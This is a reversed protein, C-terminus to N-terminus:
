YNSCAIPTSIFGNSLMDQCLKRDTNIDDKYLSFKNQNEVM